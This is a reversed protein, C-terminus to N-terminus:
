QRRGVSTGDDYMTISTIVIRNGPAPAPGRSTCHCLAIIITRTATGVNGAADHASVALTVPGDPADPPITWGGCDAPQGNITCTVSTVAVNDTATFGIQIVGAQKIIQNETPSQITLVPAQIDSVTVVCAKDSDMVVTPGCGSDGTIATNGWGPDPTVGITVPTNLTYVGAGTVTAQGVTNITLTATRVVYNAVCSVAHAPMTFTDGCLPDGGWSAFIYAGAPNPSLTVSAGEVANTPAATPTGGGAPNASVTIPFSRPPPPGLTVSWVNTQGSHILFARGLSPVYFFRKWTGNAYPAPPYVGDPAVQRQWTCKPLGTLGCPQSVDMTYLAGTGAVPGPGYGYLTTGVSVVGPGFTSEIQTDGQTLLTQEKAALNNMDFMRIRTPSAAGALRYVKRGVFVLPSSGSSSAADQTFLLEHTDTAHNYARLDNQIRVLTKGLV